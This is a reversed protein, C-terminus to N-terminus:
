NAYAVVATTTSNNSTNPDTTSASVTSTVSYTGTTTVRLGIVTDVATGPAESRVPRSSEGTHKDM